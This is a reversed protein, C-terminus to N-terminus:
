SDFFDELIIEQQVLETSYTNKKLGYPTILTLFLTKTTKTQAQFVAIKRQLEKAYSQDITFETRCFKIECLHICDDKRDIILDIQAGRESKDKPRYSWQSEQTLVASIGLKKKIQPIHKFCISEFAYGSWTKWRPDSNMKLWYDQDNGLIISGRIPEMWSIYFYSYEDVLWLKKDKSKKLFEPCAAIFGSEELEGIVSSFQGGSPIKLSSLLDKQLIGTKRTALEKVIQLHKQSDDFLSQYLNNFEGVLQGQPMFCLRNITQAVSDGPRVYTLYKAIGGMTMYLEFIQKRSLHVKQSLLFKETENITFASLKIVESLRGYLGGKNNIIKKIIWNAASGCVILIVNNLHSLYQNWIYELAQLFGSRNSALWPLEDFFIIIKRSRDIERIAEKLTYLADDWDKPEKLHALHPFMNLLERHFKRLQLKKSSNVSGTICFYTGKDKFYEHILYTKGVRRRGYIALFEPKNSNYLRELIKIEKVRGFITHNM